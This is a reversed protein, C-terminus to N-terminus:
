YLYMDFIRRFKKTVPHQAGLLRFVAIGARRPLENFINKDKGVVDIIQEIGKEPNGNKLEAAASMLTKGLTSSEDLMYLEKLSEVDEKLDYDPDGLKIGAVLQSATAVDSFVKMRALKRSADQHDPNSAVFSALVEEAEEPSMDDLKAVINSWVEKQENPLEEDLWKQIQVKSLAGAFEAVVGGRHFMKVNPISRIDYDSAIEQHEETNLKVLEWQGKSETAMSEIVPGLVKCPGCWPAWFDVLVPIEHSREIVEKQFDM